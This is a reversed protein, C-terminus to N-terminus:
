SDQNYELHESISKHQKLSEISLLAQQKKPPGSNLELVWILTNLHGAATAGAMKQDVCSGFVYAPAHMCAFVFLYRYVLDQFCSNPLPHYTKLLVRM